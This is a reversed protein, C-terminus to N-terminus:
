VHARGIQTELTALTTPASANVDWGEQLVVTPPIAPTTSASYGQTSPRSWSASYSLGAYYRVCGGSGLATLGLIAAFARSVSRKTITPGCM